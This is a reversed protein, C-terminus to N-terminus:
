LKDVDVGKLVYQVEGNVDVSQKLHGMEEAISRLATHKTRRTAADVNDLSNIEEIDRTYEAIRAKKQALFLGALEDDPAAKVAEIREKNRKKFASISHQSVEYKEALQEQTMQSFAFDQVLNYGVWGALKKREGPQIDLEEDSWM